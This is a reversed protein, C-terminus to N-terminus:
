IKGNMEKSVRSMKCLDNVPLFTFIYRTLVAPLIKNFQVKIEDGKKEPQIVIKELEMVVENEKEESDIKM